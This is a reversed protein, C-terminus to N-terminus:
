GMKAWIGSRVTPSASLSGAVRGARLGRRETVRLVPKVRRELTPIENEFGNEHEYGLYTVSDRTIYPLPDFLVGNAPYDPVVLLVGAPNNMENCYSSASFVTVVLNDLGFRVGEQISQHGRVLLKLSNTNLFQELATKGYLFGNGRPSLDYEEVEECPDSWLISDAIGGYLEGIVRPIQQIQDLNTFNPGIGGHVCLTDSNIVAAIPFTNFVSIIEDFVAKSYRLGELEKRFGGESCQSRFEHNGRIVYVDTPWLIKMTLITMVVETSFDGRDVLDGLFLYRSASSPYGFRKLIRFLDFVHGHLDGIIVFEGSLELMGKEERFIALATQAILTVSGEQFRPLCPRDRADRVLEIASKISEWISEATM